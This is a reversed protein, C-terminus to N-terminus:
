WLVPPNMPIKINFLIIMSSGDKILKIIKINNPLPREKNHIKVSLKGFNSLILIFHGFKFPFIVM